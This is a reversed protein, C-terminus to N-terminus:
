KRITTFATSIEIVRGTKYAPNNRSTVRMSQFGPVMAEGQSVIVGKVMSGNFSKYEVKTGNPIRKHDAM